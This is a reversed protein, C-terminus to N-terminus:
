REAKPALGARVPNLETYRLAKWLHWEDFPCSYFRGQWVHGISHHVRELLCCIPRAHGEACSGHCGSKGPDHHSSRPKLCYGVLALSHLEISQRLLDLYVKRDADTNLIFQRANGRQIVHHPVGVAVVRALRMM